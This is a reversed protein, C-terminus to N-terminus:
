VNLMKNIYTNTELSEIIYEYKKCNEIFVSEDVGYFWERNVNLLKLNRHFMKEIKFSYKSKYFHVLEIHNPSGTMLSKIRKEIDKTVGIKYYIDGDGYMKILYVFSM